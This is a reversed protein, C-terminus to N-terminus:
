VTVLFGLDILWLYFAFRPLRLLSVLFFQSFRMHLLGAAWASLSYPLPSVAGIAVALAGYRRVIREASAIRKKIFREVSAFHSMRSALVFGVTGGILSGASALGVVSWFGLGGLLAVGTLLDHPIPAVFADALFIGGFVAFGGYQEVFGRSFAMIPERFYTSLLVLAGILLLLGVIMRLFLARGNIAGQEEDASGDVNESNLLTQQPDHSM